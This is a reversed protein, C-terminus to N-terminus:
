VTPIVNVSSELIQEATPVKLTSKRPWHSDTHLWWAERSTKPSGFLTRGTGSVKTSDALQMVQKVNCDYNWFFYRCRNSIMKAQICKSKLMILYLNDKCKRARGNNQTSYVRRCCLRRRYFNIKFLIAM